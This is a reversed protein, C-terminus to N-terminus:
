RVVRFRWTKVTRKGHPDTAVIKVTHRAYALRGSRYSLRDTSRDYGFASKRKGDVFLRIHSKALNTEADRVTARISPRRSKIRAGPRPNM